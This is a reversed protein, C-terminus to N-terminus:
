RKQKKVDGVKTLQVFTNNYPLYLYTCKLYIEKRVAIKNFYTCM